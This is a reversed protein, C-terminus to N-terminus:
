SAVIRHARGGKERGYWPAWRSRCEKGVRREESRGAEVAAEIDANAAAPLPAGQANFFFVTIAPVARPVNHSIFEYDTSDTAVSVGIRYHGIQEVINSDSIRNCRMKPESDASRVDEVPEFDRTNPLEEVVAAPLKAILTYGPD